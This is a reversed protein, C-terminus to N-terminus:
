FCMHLVVIGRCALLYWSCSLLFDVQWKSAHDNLGVFWWVWMTLALGRLVPFGKVDPFPLLVLIPQCYSKCLCLWQCVWSACLSTRTLLYIYIGFSCLALHLM